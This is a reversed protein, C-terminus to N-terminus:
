SGEALVVEITSPADVGAPLAHWSQVRYLRGSVAVGWASEVRSQVDASWPLVVSMTDTTTVGLGRLIANHSSSQPLFPTATCPQTHWGVVVPVGSGNVFQDIHRDYAVGAPLIWETVPHIIQLTPEGSLRWMKMFSMQAQRAGLPKAM